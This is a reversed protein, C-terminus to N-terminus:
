YDDFTAVLVSDGYLGLIDTFYSPTVAQFDKSLDEAVAHTNVKGIGRRDNGKVVWVNGSIALSVSSVKENKFYVTDIQFNYQAKACSITLILFATFLKCYITM